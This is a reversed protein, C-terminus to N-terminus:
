ARGAARKIAWAGVATVSSCNVYRESKESSRMVLVDPVRFRTARTQTRLEPFVEIGRACTSACAGSSKM